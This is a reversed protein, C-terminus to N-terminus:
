LELSFLFLWILAFHFQIYEVLFWKFRLLFFFFFWRCWFKLNMFTFISFLLTRDTFCIFYVCLITFHICFTAKWRRIFLVLWHWDFSLCVFLLLFKHFSIFFYLFCCIFYLSFFFCLSLCVCVKSRNYQELKRSKIDHVSHYQHVASSFHFKIPFVLSVHFNHMQAAGLRSMLASFWVVSQMENMEKKFTTCAIMSNQNLAVYKLM